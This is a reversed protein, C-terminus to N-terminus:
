SENDINKWANPYYNGNVFNFESYSKLYNTPCIIKKNENKNIYAAWWSYSSNAIINHDCMSMLIMDVCDQGQQMFTVMEGEILNEKCWEIDNSFIVFHYKEIHDLFYQLASEYYNNDLKCFHHHQPLLYDGRRVHISVLEKDQVKIKKYLEKAANEYDKNLSMNLIDNSYKPHWYHFLHFLGSINYNINSDLKFMNPDKIMMGNPEIDVFDCFFDEPMITLPIDILKSFKFGWGQILSSEPFAIVKNNEKAIAHLSAYQQLQSGLDGSKGLGKITIYSM